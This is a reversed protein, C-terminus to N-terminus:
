PPVTPRRPVPGWCVGPAGPAPAPAEQPRPRALGPLEEAIGRHTGAAPPVPASVPPEADAATRRAFAAQRARQLDALHGAPSGAAPGATSGAPRATGDAPGQPSPEAAGDSSTSPPSPADTM